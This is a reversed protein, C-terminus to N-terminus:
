ENGLDEVQSSNNVIIIWKGDHVLLEIVHRGNGSEALMKARRALNVAPRPLNESNTHTHAVTGKEM